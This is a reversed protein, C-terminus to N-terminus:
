MCVALDSHVNNCSTLHRCTCAARQTFREDEPSDGADAATEDRGAAEVADADGEPVAAEEAAVTDVIDGIDGPSDAGEPPSLADPAAADAGAGDEDAAVGDERATDADSVDADNGEQVPDIVAEAHM